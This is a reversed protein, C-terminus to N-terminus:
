HLTLIMHAVGNNIRLAQTKNQKLKKTRAETDHETMHGSFSFM